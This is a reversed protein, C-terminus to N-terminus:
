SVTKRFKDLIQKLNEIKPDMLIPSKESNHSKNEGKRVKEFFKITKHVLRNSSNTTSISLENYLPHDDEDDLFDDDENAWVVIDDLDEEENMDPSEYDVPDIFLSDEEDEDYKDELDISKVFTRMQNLIYRRRENKREQDSINLRQIDRPLTNITFLESDDKSEVKEEEEDEDQDYKDEEQNYSDRHNQDNINDHEERYEDRQISPITSYPIQFRFIQEIMQLYIGSKDKEDFKIEYKKENSEWLLSDFTKEFSDRSIESTNLWYLISPQNSEWENNHVLKSIRQQHSM